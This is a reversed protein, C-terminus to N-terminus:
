VRVSFTASFPESVRRLDDGSILANTPATMPEFCIFGSGPPAYVQAYPYGEDFTARLERGGGALVFAAGQEVRDYGDDFTRDGLPARPYHVPESRGTPIMREDLELRRRVPLEIEWEERPAGPLRFYPHFGFSVPVPVDGTPRITTTLTLETRTLRAELSVVHPFPFEALLEEHAGFDLEARLRASGDEDGAEAVRWHPSAILLGHIPLGNPDLGVLPSGRDVHVQRGGATYDFGALRNAWPHLLPIGVAKGDEYASLGGPLDLLQEGRHLLSGCLMGLQPLFTAELESSALTITPHGDVVGEHIAM